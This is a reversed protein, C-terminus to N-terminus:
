VDGGVEALSQGKEGMGRPDLIMARHRAMANRKQQLTCENNRTRKIAGCGNADLLLRQWRQIRRGLEGDRRM